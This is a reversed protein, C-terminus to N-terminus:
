QVIKCLRLLRSSFGAGEARARNLNILIQPREGRRGIGVAIGADCYAPIGTLTTVELDGSARVIQALDFARLPAVYLIDVQHRALAESLDTRRGVDIPVARLPVGKVTKLPSEEVTQMLADKVNDSRRHEGQYVIGM